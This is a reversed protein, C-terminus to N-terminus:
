RKKVLCGGPTKQKIINCISKAREKSVPGAQIRHYLGKAGLDAVEIRHPLGSLVSYKAQKKTWEAEANAAGQVSGVQIFYDGVGGVTASTFDEPAVFPESRSTKEIISNFTTSAPAVPHIAVPAGVIPSTKVTSIIKSPAKLALKPVSKSKSAIKPKPKSKAKPKPKTKPKVAITPLANLAEKVLAEEETKMETETEGELVIEEAEQSQALIEESPVDKEISGLPKDLPSSESDAQTEETKLGAFLQSRPLPVEGDDEAFLNEIHNKEGGRLSSFVTSDRHSIEMGGPNTPIVKFPKKDARVIPVNAGASKGEQNSSYLNWVV